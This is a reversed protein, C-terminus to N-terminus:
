PAKKVYKEYASIWDGSIIRQAEELPMKGGCVMWRLHNELGDKLYANYPMTYYSQPWLNEVDNSGGLQLSILHDVEYRGSPPIGYREFVIRKTKETVHRHAPAYGESCVVRVDTEAAKGPTLRADPSM